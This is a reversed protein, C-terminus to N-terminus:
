QIIQTIGYTRTPLFQLQNDQSSKVNYYNSVNSNLIPQNMISSQRGIEHRDVIHYRQYKRCIM